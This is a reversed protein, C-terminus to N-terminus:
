ESLYRALAFQVPGNAGATGAAVIKGDSQLAVADAISLGGILIVTTVVGTGGFSPDLTGNPRYRALAFRDHGNV